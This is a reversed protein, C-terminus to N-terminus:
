DCLPIRGASPRICDVARREDKLDEDAWEMDLCVSTLRTEIPLDVYKGSNPGNMLSDVSSWRLRLFPDIQKMADIACQWPRRGQFPGKMNEALARKWDAPLTEATIPHRTSLIAEIPGRDRGAMWDEFQVIICNREERSGRWYRDILTRSQQDYDSVMAAYEIWHVWFELLRPFEGYTEGDSKRVILSPEDEDDVGCEISLNISKLYRNTATLNPVRM